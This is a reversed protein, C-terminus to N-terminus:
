AILGGLVYAIAAAAAVVIVVKFFRVEGEVTVYGPWAPRIRRGFPWVRYMRDVLHFVVAAMLFMLGLAYGFSQQAGPSTLSGLRFAYVILVGIGVLMLLVVVTYIDLLRNRLRRVEAPTPESSL